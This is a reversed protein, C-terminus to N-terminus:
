GHGLCTRLQILGRRILSKMTALKMEARQALAEYTHGGFFAARIAEQARAELGALCANLRQDRQATELEAEAGPRADAIEAAANIDEFRRKGARVHDLARNRAIAALWTVPSTGHAVDFLAAKHWIILFVEQLVDEAAGRDHLIRLCLGFLKASTKEYLFKLAARDGTAIRHLAATLQATESM